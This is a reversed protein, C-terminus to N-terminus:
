HKRLITKTCEEVEAQECEKYHEYIDKDENYFIDDNFLNCVELYSDFHECDRCDNPVEVKVRIKPM